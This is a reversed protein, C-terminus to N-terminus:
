VRLFTSFTFFSVFHVCLPFTVIFYCINGSRMCINYAILQRSETQFFFRYAISLNLQKSRTNTQTCHTCLSGWLYKISLVLTVSRYNRMIEFAPADNEVHASGDPLKNGPILAIDSLPSFLYISFSSYPNEIKNQKTQGNCLLKRKDNKQSTIVNRDLWVNM